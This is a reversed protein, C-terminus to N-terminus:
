FVLVLVDLNPCRRGASQSGNAVRARRVQKSPKGKLEPTWDSVGVLLLERHAREDPEDSKM